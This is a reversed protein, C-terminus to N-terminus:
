NGLVWGLAFSFFVMRLPHAITASALWSWFGLDSSLWGVAIAVFAILFVLWKVPWPINLM